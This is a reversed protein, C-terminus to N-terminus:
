QLLCNEASRDLTKSTDLWEIAIDITISPHKNINERFKREWETHLVSDKEYGFAGDRYVYAWFAQGLMHGAEAAELMSPLGLCLNSSTLYLKGLNVQAYAYEDSEPEISRLLKITEDESGIGSNGMYINAIRIKSREIGLDASKQFLSLAKDINKERGKGLLFCEALNDYAVPFGGQDVSKQFYDCAKKHDTEYKGYGNWYVTGKNFLIESDNAHAQLGIGFLLLFIGETALRKMMKLRKKNNGHGLNLVRNVPM